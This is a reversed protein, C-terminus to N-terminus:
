PIRTHFLDLLEDHYEPFMVLMDMVTRLPQTMRATHEYFGAVVDRQFDEFVMLRPPEPAASVVAGVAGSEALRVYGLRGCRM